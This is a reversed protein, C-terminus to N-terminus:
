PLAARAPAIKFPFPQRERFDLITSGDFKNMCQPFGTHFHANPSQKRFPYNGAINEVISLMHWHLLHIM